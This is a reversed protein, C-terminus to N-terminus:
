YLAKKGHPSAFPSILASWVRAGTGQAELVSATGEPQSHAPPPGATAAAAPNVKSTSSLQLVTFALLHDPKRGRRDM